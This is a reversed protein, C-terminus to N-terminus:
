QTSFGAASAGIPSGPPVVAPPIPTVGAPNILYQALRTHNAVYHARWEPQKERRAKRELWRRLEHLRASAAARIQPSAAANASLSTLQQLVNENNVRQLQAEVGTRQKQYWSAQLISECLDEFGPFEEATAHQYNMRAARAPHLLVELTLGSASRAPALPDFVGGSYAHFTERTRPVGPPRPPIQAVIDDSLRLLTPDLTAILAQMARRQEAPSVPEPLSQGDGRMTYSFRQGGILKGVAQMQYRHLLYIPVLVEELSAM